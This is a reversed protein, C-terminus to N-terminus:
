VLIVLKALYNMFAVTKIGGTMASQLYKQIGDVVSIGTFNDYLDVNEAAAVLRFIAVYRNRIHDIPKGPLQHLMRVGIANWSNSREEHTL